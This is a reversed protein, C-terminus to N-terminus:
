TPSLRAVSKRGSHAGRTDDAAVLADLARARDRWVNAEDASEVQLGLVATPREARLGGTSAVAAVRFRRRRGGSAAGFHEYMTRRHTPAGRAGAECDGAVGCAHHAKTSPCDANKRCNSPPPPLNNKQRHHSTARYVAEGVPFARLLSPGDVLYVDGRGDLTFQQAKFDDLLFGASAWSRFCRLLARALKLPEHRALEIFESSLM